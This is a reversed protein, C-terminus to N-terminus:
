RFLMHLLQALYIHHLWPSLMVQQPLHLLFTTLARAKTV